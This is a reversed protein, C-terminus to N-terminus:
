KEDISLEFFIILSIFRVDSPMEALTEYFVQELTAGMIVVDKLLFFVDRM